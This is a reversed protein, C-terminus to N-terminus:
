AAAELGFPVPEASKRLYLPHKPSGDRNVGLCELDSGLIGSLDRARQGALSFSGWGVMVKAVDTRDALWEDNRKGGTIDVGDKQAALMVKPDPTRFAFINRVIMGEYGWARSYERCRTLTPDLVQEDATSPNLMIWLVYRAPADPDRLLSPTNDWRRTLNFRFQGCESFVAEGNSGVLRVIQGDADDGKPM